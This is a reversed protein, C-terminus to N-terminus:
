YGLTFKFHKGIPGTPIGAGPARISETGFTGTSFKPPTGRCGQTGIICNFTLKFFLALQAKRKDGGVSLKGTGGQPCQNGACDPPAVIMQGVKKSRKYVWIIYLPAGPKGLTGPGGVRGCNSPM